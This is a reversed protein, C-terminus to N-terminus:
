KPVPDGILCTNWRDWQAPFFALIELYCLCYFRVLGISTFIDDMYTALANRCSRSFFNRIAIGLQQFYCGFILSITSLPSFFIKSSMVVLVDIRLRIM